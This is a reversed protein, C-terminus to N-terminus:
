DTSRWKKLGVKHAPLHKKHKEFSDPEFKKYQEFSQCMLRDCLSNREKASLIMFTIFIVMFVLMGAICVIEM